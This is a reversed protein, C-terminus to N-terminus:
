KKAAAKKEKAEKAAEAKETKTTEHQRAVVSGDIANVNVEEIGTKGPVTIDYSYILKGKERELESSKVSGNPVEKLATERATAEPIKAEKQLAAQSEAKRAKTSHKATTMSQKAPKVSSKYTSTAQAGAVTTSAALAVAVAIAKLM